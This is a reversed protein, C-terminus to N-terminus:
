QASQLEFKICVPMPISIEHNTDVLKGTLPDIRFTVVNNSNQNAVLLFTGSPDIAFNRPIKGKTSQHGILELAGSSENINYMAINNNEGRNSAYLYKGSPTIHIDACNAPLKTGSPLTSIVQFRSLIGTSIDQNFAEITGNLENVIYIWPHGPHYAIHRPGAGSTLSTLNGTAVLRNNQKDITYSTLRDTGLDTAYIFKGNHDPLIM